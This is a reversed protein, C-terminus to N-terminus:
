QTGPGTEGGAVLPVRTGGRETVYELRHEAEQGWSETHDSGEAMSLWPPLSPGAHKCDLM